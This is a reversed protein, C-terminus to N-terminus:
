FFSWPDRVRRVKISIERTKIELAQTYLIEANKTRLTLRINKSFSVTLKTIPQISPFCQLLNDDLYYCVVEHELAPLTINLALQCMDGVTQVICVKPVVQWSPNKTDNSAGAASFTVGALVIFTAQFVRSPITLIHM